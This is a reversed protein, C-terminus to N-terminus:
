SRWIGGDTITQFQRLTNRYGRLTGAALDKNASLFGEVAEIFPKGPAPPDHELNAAKRGARTWNRTDLSIRAREGNLEGYAWIPCSCRIYSQGENRHPCRRGHRRYITLM